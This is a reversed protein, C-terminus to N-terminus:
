DVFVPVQTLGRVASRLGPQYTARQYVVPLPLAACGVKEFRVPFDVGEPVGVLWANPKSGAEIAPVSLDPQTAGAKVYVARAGPMPQKTEPNLVSVTGGAADCRGMLSVVTVALVGRNEDSGAQANYAGLSSSPIVLVELGSLVRGPLLQLPTLTTPAYLLKATRVTFTSDAPVELVYEGGAGTTFTADTEACTVTVGEVPLGNSDVVRGALTAFSLEPKSEVPLPDAPRPQPCASLALAAVLLRPM